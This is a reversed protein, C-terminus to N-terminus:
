KKVMTYWSSINHMHKNRLHAKQREYFVKAVTSLSDWASDTLISLHLLSLCTSIPGEKLAAKEDVPVVVVVVVVAVVAVVIGVM